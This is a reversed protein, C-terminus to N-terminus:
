ATGLRSLRLAGEVVSRVERAPDNKLAELAKAANATALRGLAHASAERLYAVPSSLTGELAKAMSAMNAQEAYLAACAAIWPRPGSILESIWEETTHTTAVAGAVRDELLPLLRKKFAERVTNDLVEVANARKAASDSKFNEAVVDLRAGPHLLQLLLLVRELTREREEALALALLVKGQGNKSPAPVQTRDLVPLKLAVQANLLMEAATLESFIARTVVERRVQLDKQRRMTRALARAANSRLPPDDAELADILSDAASRSGLRALVAPIARRVEISFEGPVLMAKTLSREVGPGFATLATTIDRVADARALKRILHPVLEPSRLKAAATTAARRVYPNPDDLFGVLAHYFTPVGIEGLVNAAMERESAEEAHLLRKLEDAADLIGNIGAHRVLGIVAAARLAPRHDHLFQTVDALANEREIACIAEIASAVCWPDRDRLMSRVQEAYRGDARHALHRAAAARVSSIPHDLLAAVRPGFDRGPLAELMELAHLVALTDPSDLVKAIADATGPDDQLTTANLDTRRQNLTALLSKVYEKSGRVLLWVWAGVLAVIIVTTVVTAHEGGDAGGLSKKHGLFILLGGAAVGALPKLIGDILAKARGRQHTPVPVYLLQMSADNLTYRFVSDSGKAISAAWGSNLTVAAVSGFALGIPLPLLSALVGFRELARGTVGMQIALALAGCIGYFKGFFAGLAAKDTFQDEAAAKFQYDVLNVALASVVAIGAIAVLHPTALTKMRAKLGDAEVHASKPRQTAAGHAAPFRRGIYRALVACAVLNAACLFLLSEAGFRKSLSSSLFGYVVSALQGGAGILGFLRKAERSTFVDQAFTWFQIVVLSGMAEIAVYLVASGMRRNEPVAVVFFFAAVIAAWALATVANLRERRVGDAIRSYGWSLLAVAVSNLIYMQPLDAKSRDALFLTDRVTRGVVVAGIAVASYMAMYFVKSAEGPRVKLARDLLVDFRSAM